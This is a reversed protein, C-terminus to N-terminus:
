LADGPTGRPHGRSDMCSSDTAMSLICEDRSEAATSAHAQQAGAAASVTLARKGRWGLSPVLTNWRMNGSRLGNAACVSATRLATFSSPAFSPRSSAFSRSVSGTPEIVLGATNLGLLGSLGSMVAPM